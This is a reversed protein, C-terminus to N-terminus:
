KQEAELVRHSLAHRAVESPEFLARRWRKEAFAETQDAFHPSAPDGSQGYSLIVDAVPGTEEWGVVMVFSTGSVIPYGHDTLYRSDAIRQVGNPGTPWGPDRAVMLNAVGEYQNGGHVAIRQEGRWAFQAQDLTANLPLGSDELVRMAQVLNRRALEKDALGAPTSIPADPSFPESFLEGATFTQGYPYRSLWERFLVAGSQGLDMRGDFGALTECAESLDVIGDEWTTEPQQRCAAVLPELLLEAAMSANDFLAARVAARDFRMRENGRGDELHRSLLRANMRTRLSRPTEISGYLPSHGTTTQTPHSLWYSDNANFVVDSRELIPKDSFPVVAPLHAGPTEIWDNDSTSGDLLVWNWQAWAGAVQPDDELRTQWAQTTEVSLHGVNSGDIFVARGDQSAAITNIWPMANWDAHAQIFADMNEAQGLSLWQQLMWYNGQNADRATFAHTESWEFGPLNLIPGYHSFWVTQEHVDHGGDETLVDVQVTRAEMEREGSDFRYRTPKGELLELRYFVLRQSASVTHTWAVDRNFGIAVGPLGLLNAGYVELEGPVHLRKEWFRNPGYWPYHPNGLLLGRGNASGDRGFAWANSGFGGLGTSEAAEAIMRDGVMFSALEPEDSQPKPPVASAMAAGMRPLTLALAATRASIDQASIPRVWEAGACWSQPSGDQEALYRNYGAAYGEIWAVIPDSQTALLAEAASEIKLATMAIDSLLHRNNPGPGLYRALEGRAELIAWAINCVHDEAAAYGEGYGLSGLDEATIHAVGHKTRVIEARYGAASSVGFDIDAEPHPDTEACSALMMAALSVSVLMASGPRTM